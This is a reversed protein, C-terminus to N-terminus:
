QHNMIRQHSKLKWAYLKDRDETANSSAWKATYAEAYKKLRVAVALMEQAERPKEKVV